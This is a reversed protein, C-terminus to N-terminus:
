PESAVYGAACANAILRPWDGSIDPAAGGTGNIYVVRFDPRYVTAISGGAYTGDAVGDGQPVVEPYAVGIGYAAVNTHLISVGDGAYDYPEFTPGGVTTAPSYDVGMIPTGDLGSPSPVSTGIGLVVTGGADVFDRLTTGLALSDAYVGGAHTFVCDVNAELEALTPTEAGTDQYTVTGGTLAAIAQRFGSADPTSPAYLIRIPSCSDAGGGECRSYLEIECSASCGDDAEVNADDCTENDAWVFGDGCIAQECTDLCDDTNVANGDDCAEGAEM